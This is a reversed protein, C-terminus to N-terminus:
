GDRKQSAIVRLVIVLDTPALNLRVMVRLGLAALQPHKSLLTIM